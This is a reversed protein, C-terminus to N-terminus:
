LRPYRKTPMRINSEIVLFITELHDNENIAKQQIKIKDIFHIMLLCLVRIVEQCVLLIIKNRTVFSRGSVKNINKAVITGNTLERKM